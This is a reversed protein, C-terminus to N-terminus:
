HLPYCNELRSARHFYHLTREVTEHPFCNKGTDCDLGRFGTNCRCGLPHVLCFLFGRCRDKRDGSYACRQECDYGMRNGGCATLCNEGRFGPACVCRGTNEDCIGGNYCSDCVGECDPPGWRTSPCARVILLNLGHKASARDGQRHCEYIGTHYLQIPEDFTFTDAGFNPDTGPMSGDWLNTNNRWRLENVLFEETTINMSITVDKDGISVTQTFLDNRPVIDADSRMRTTSIVTEKKGDKSAKCGFVGFGDNNNNNYMDVRYYPRSNTTYYADPPDPNEAATDRTWGTRLSEVTVENPDNDTPSVRCQYHHDVESKFHNLSLMTMRVQEQGHCRFIILVTFLVLCNPISQQM